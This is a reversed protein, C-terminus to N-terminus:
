SLSYCYSFFVIAVVDWQLHRVHASGCMDLKVEWLQIVHEAKTAQVYGPGAIYIM